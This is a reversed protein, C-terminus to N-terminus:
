TQTQTQKPLKVLEESIEWLRRASEANEAHSMPAVEQCNEYYKGSENALREDVACCITTQAGHVRDKLFPSSLVRAIDKIGPYTLFKVERIIDTYINGPHLSYTTVGTGELRRGLESSFLINALKSQCYSTVRSCSKELM